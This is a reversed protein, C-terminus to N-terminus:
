DVTLIGSANWQLTYSEGDGLSIVSGLDGVQILPKGTATDDFLIVYRFSAMTGGSATIVLDNADLTGVGGTETYTKGALAFGGATYGSGAAIETIDAFLAETAVNPATNSLAIKLTDTALNFEGKGLREKFDQYKSWSAM